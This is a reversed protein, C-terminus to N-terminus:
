TNTTPPAGIHLPRLRQVGLEGFIREATFRRTGRSPVKHRRQLFDQVAHLVYNNYTKDRLDEQLAALWAELGAGEVEAFDVGDVGPSGGNARALRYAHFLIDERYIKDYLAYFRFGPERKAKVYLKRQFRQIKEPTQLRM